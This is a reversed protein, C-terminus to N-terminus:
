KTSGSLETSNRPSRMRRGPFRIVTSDEKDLSVQYKAVEWPVGLRHWALTLVNYSPSDLNKHGLIPTGSDDADKMINVLEIIVADTGM